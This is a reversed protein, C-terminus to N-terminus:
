GFAYDLPLVPGDVARLEVTNAECDYIAYRIRGVRDRGYGISGVSVIYSDDM